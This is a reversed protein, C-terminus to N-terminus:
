KDNKYTINEDVEQSNMKLLLAANQMDNLMLLQMITDFTHKDLEIIVKKM